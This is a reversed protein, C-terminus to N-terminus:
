CTDSQLRQGSLWGHLAQVLPAQERAMAEKGPLGVSCAVAASAPLPRHMDFIAVAAARILASREADFLRPWLWAHIEGICGSLVSNIAFEAVSRAPRQFGPACPPVRGAPLRLWKSSNM